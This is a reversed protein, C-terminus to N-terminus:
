KAFTGGDHNIYCSPSSAVENQREKLEGISNKSRIALSMEGSWGHAM